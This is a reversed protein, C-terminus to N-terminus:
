KRFQSLWNGSPSFERVGSKRDGVDCRRRTDVMLFEGMKVGRECVEESQYEEM